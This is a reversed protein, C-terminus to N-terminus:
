TVCDTDDLDTDGDCDNDIADDCIEIAGPYVEPDLDDCDEDVNYGDDDLDELATDSPLDPVDYVGAAYCAMLVMASGVAAAANRIRRLLNTPRRGCFPCSPEAAAHHRGCETCRHM